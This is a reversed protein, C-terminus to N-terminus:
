IRYNIGFEYAGMTQGGFHDDTVQLLKLAPVLEGLRAKDSYLYLVMVFLGAVANLANKM